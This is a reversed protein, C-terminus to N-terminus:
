KVLFRLTKRNNNAQIFVFYVGASLRHGNFLYSTGAVEHRTFETTIEKGLADFIRVIADGDIGVLTFSGLNPNPYLSIDTQCIPLQIGVPAFFVETSFQYCNSTNGVRVKYTGHATPTYSSNTAGSIPNGDQYWQYSIAMASTSLVAPSKIIAPVALTPNVFVVVSDYGICGTASTSTLLYTSTHTPKVNISPSTAIATNNVSWALTVGGVGNLTISDGTCITQDAGANVAIGNITIINNKTINLGGNANSIALSVSYTGPTNYKVIPQVLISSAPTGGPFTWKYNLGTTPSSTPVFSLTDNTCVNNRSNSFNATITNNCNLKIAKTKKIANAREGAVENNNMLAKVSFWDDSTSDIGTFVFYTNTTNAVSDMYKAGLRYVTYSTANALSTWSMRCSGSCIWDLKLATPIPTVNIFQSTVSESNGQKIKLWLKGGSLATPTYSYLRNKGNITSTVTTWNINDTSTQVSIPNNTNWSDWRITEVVGPTWRDNGLPYVLQISDYIFDYIVYYHQPGFPVQFGKVTIFLKGADPTDITVQEMNNLSDIKQTAAAGLTTANAAPNLVWPYYAKGLMDYVTMNLDNVIAKSAGSSAEVDAYYMMIKIKKVNAPITIFTRLSDGNSVSYENYSKDEIVRLAKLANVRGYGYKYDPGPNGIDDATNLLIGKMLAGTPDEGNNNARYAQYLQALVGSIAPCAMSTGTLNAYSNTSVTSYVNTGVSSIDPKIRGDSAPGRSSSADVSDTYLLNAVAIVNKGVKMGGTINGWGAINAGKYSCNSTGSNGASFVSIAAPYDRMMADISNADSSYGQNCSQGYSLSTIRIKYTNYHAPLNDINAYPMYVYLSCGPAMGKTKPNLNGAGALIGSVHDGHDGNNTTGVWTQDFRGTYDIHPGLVGDDGLAVNVGSGDYHIGNRGSLNNDIAYSRHNTREIENEPVAPAREPDIYSVFSLTSLQQLSSTKVRIQFHHMAVSESIIEYKSKLLAAKVDNHLLDSYYTIVLDIQHNPKLAWSPLEASTLMPNLKNEPAICAVSRITSSNLHKRTEASLACIYTQNPIYSLFRIGITELEKKEADSPLAYFQLYLHMVNQFTEQKVQRCSLKLIGKNEPIELSRNNLLLTYNQQANSLNIGM